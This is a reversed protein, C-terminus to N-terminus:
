PRLAAAQPLMKGAHEGRGTGVQDDGTARGRREFRQRGFKARQSPSDRADIQVHALVGADLPGHGVPEARKLRISMRTLLAPQLMRLGAVSTVQDSQFSITSVFRRPANKTAWAAAHCIIGRRYPRIMLMPETVHTAPYAPRAGYPALRPPM